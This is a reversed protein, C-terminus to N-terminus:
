PANTAEAKRLVAAPLLPREEQPITKGPMKQQRLCTTCTWWQFHHGIIHSIWSVAWLGGTCVSLAAYVAHPVKERQFLRKEGCPECTFHREQM